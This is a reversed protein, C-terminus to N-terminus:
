PLNSSPTLCLRSEIATFFHENSTPKTGDHPARDRAGAFLFQSNSAAFPRLIGLFSLFSHAPGLRSATVRGVLLDTRRALTLDVCAAGGM